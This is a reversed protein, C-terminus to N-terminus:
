AAALACLVLTEAVIEDPREVLDWWSVRKVRWGAARLRLTRETDARRDLLASHHRASDLEVVLRSERFLLDVRGIWGDGDGLDIEVAPEPLGAAAFVARGLAELESSPAVYGECRADLLERMTATGRRGRRALEAFVAQVDGIRVLGSSLAADLAREARAPHVVGALDSVTRAPTTVPIALQETRHHDPLVMSGHVWGNHRRQSRGRPKSVEIVGVGFGPLGWLWAAARHSAVADDGNFRVAALLRQHPTPPAGGMRFVGRCMPVLRGLDVWRREASPTVGATRLDATTLVGHSREAVATLTLLRTDTMGSM